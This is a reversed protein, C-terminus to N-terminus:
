SREFSFSSTSTVKYQALLTVVIDPLSNSDKRATFWETKVVGTIEKIKIDGKGDSDTMGVGVSSNALYVCAFQLDSELTSPLTIKNRIIITSQRLLVEKDSDSLDDWSAHQASPINESIITEADALSSFSDYDDTPYVTLAM